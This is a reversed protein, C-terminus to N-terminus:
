CVISGPSRTCAVALLSHKGQRERVVHYVGRGVREVAGCRVLAPLHAPTLGFDRIQQPRFYPPVGKIRFWDFAATRLCHLTDLDLEALCDLAGTALQHLIDVDQESMHVNQM